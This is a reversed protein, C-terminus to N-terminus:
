HSDPFLEDVGERSSLLTEESHSSNIQFFDKVLWLFIVASLGWSVWESMQWM